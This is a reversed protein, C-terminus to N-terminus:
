QFEDGTLRLHWLTAVCAGKLPSLLMLILALSVAPWVAMHQWTPPELFKEAILILPVVIHGVVFMTLYPPFDDARINGLEEGCAECVTVVKLYSRYVRGEGCKPCRRRLGRALVPLYPGRGRAGGGDDEPINTYDISM